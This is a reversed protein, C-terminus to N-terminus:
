GKLGTFWRRRPAPQMIKAVAEALAQLQDPAATFDEDTKTKVETHITPRAELERVRARAETLSELREAALRELLNVEVRARELQATVKLLEDAPDPKPDAPTVRPSLGAALLSNFPIAWEGNDTHVAGDIEGAKLRRQLTSRSVTVRRVAEGLTLTAPIIETM